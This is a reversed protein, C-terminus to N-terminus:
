WILVCVFCDLQIALYFTSALSIMLACSVATLFM